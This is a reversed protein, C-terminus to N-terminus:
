QGSTSARRAWPISKREAYAVAYFLVLGMIALVLISAFVRAQQFQASSQTMLYALGETSGVLEGFIAGIVSVAAAIKAGSFFYPLSSPWQIMKFIQWRSAGMSRMLNVLEPDVNCTGDVMNITIPFFTILVIVIIKPMLGFGFWVVLVPAIAIVPIAQSAIVYPYMAREVLRSQSIAVALGAGVVLAVAFGILAEEATVMAHGAILGPRDALAQLVDWPSPLLYEKVSTFYTVAQWIAIAILGLLLSIAYRNFTAVTQSSSANESPQRRARLAKQEVSM